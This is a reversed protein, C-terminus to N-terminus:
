TSGGSNPRLGPLLTVVIRSNELDVERIVSEIAPLLLEKGVEDQVIYVDNAGTQLINVITGLREAGETEVTLGLIQFHFYTGEPLADTETFRVYIRQDRWLEATNRDECGEVFLLYGRKYSRFERVNVATHEEGLFIQQDAQLEHILESFAVVLLAGRIGHPRVVRGVALFEPPQRADSKRPRNGTSEM